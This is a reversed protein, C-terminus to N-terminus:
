NTANKFYYRLELGIFRGNKMFEGGIKESTEPMFVIEGSVPPSYTFGFNLNIQLETKNRYYKGLGITFSNGFSHQVSKIRDFTYVEIQEPMAGVGYGIHPNLISTAQYFFGGKLILSLQSQLDKRVVINLPVIGKLFHLPTNILVEWPVDFDDPHLFTIHNLRGYGSQLGAEISINEVIPIEYFLGMQYAPSHQMDMLNDLKNNSVRSPEIASSLSVSIGQGQITYSILSYFFLLLIIHRRSKM